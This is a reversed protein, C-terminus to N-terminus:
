PLPDRLDCRGDTDPAYAGLFPPETAADGPVRRAASHLAHRPQLRLDVPAEPALAGGLVAAPVGSPGAEIYPLPVPEPRIPSVPRSTFTALVVELDTSASSLVVGSGVDIGTILSNALTLACPGCEIGTHHRHWTLQALLVREGDVWGGRVATWAEVGRVEADR